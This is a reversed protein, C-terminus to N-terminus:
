SDAEPDLLRAALAATARPREGLDQVYGRTIAPSGHGVHHAIDELPVGAQFLATVVSRRGTHTGVAAPDVGAAECVARVAAFLKQSTPLRGFPTLFVLDIPAGRYTQQVWASGVTAREIDQRERHARLAAVVTPPLFHVGATNRSKPDDLRQGTSRTYTSGRRITATGADFDIDDWALGLVESARNGMLFLIAVGVGLRHAGLQTLLRATEEATLSRKQARQRKPPPSTRAVPNAAVIGLNVAEEMVQLLRGRSGTISSSSLGSAVMDAIMRRVREVTLARVRVGGIQATVRDLQVRYSDRTNPRLHGARAVDLWWAALEAVTPDAGLSDGGASAIRKSRREEAEQATRGTVTRRKGSADRWTARWREGSADWYVSGDGNANKRLVVTGGDPGTVRKSRPAKKAM